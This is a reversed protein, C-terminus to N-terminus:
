ARDPSTLEADVSCRWLDVHSQDRHPLSGADDNDAEVVDIFRSKCFCNKTCSAALEMWMTKLMEVATFLFIRLLVNGARRDIVILMCQIVRHRYRVMFAYIVGMDLPQMKLTANLPLFLLAMVVLDPQVHYASCNNLM